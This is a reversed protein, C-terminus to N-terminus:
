SPLRASSMAQASQTHWLRFRNAVVINNLKGMACELQEVVFPSLLLDGEFQYVVDFIVRGVDKYLSLQLLLAQRFTLHLTGV